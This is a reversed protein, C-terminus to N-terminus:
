VFKFTKLLSFVCKVCSVFHKFHYTFSMMNKYCSPVKIQHFVSKLRNHQIQMYECQFNVWRGCVVIRCCIVNFVYWFFRQFSGKFSIVIISDLKSCNRRKDDHIWFLWRSCPRWFAGKHPFPILPSIISFLIISLRYSQFQWLLIYLM